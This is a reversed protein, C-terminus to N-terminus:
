GAPGVPTNMDTTIEAATLARNYIRVEDITGSFPLQGLHHQRRHAARQRSRPNGDQHGSTCVTGDVSCRGTTVHRRTFVLAVRYGPAARCPACGTPSTVRPHRARQHQLQGGVPVDHQQQRTGQGRDSRWTAPVAAWRTSGRRWTMATVDSTWRRPMSWPSWTTQGTSACRRRRLPGRAWVARSVTGTNAAASADALHYRQRRRLRLRGGPRHRAANSVTVHRVASTTANGGADRARATLMHTGNTAGLTNWSVSYPATTDEAGLSVGDLLFQVGVVGVNDAANASVSVTASVTAGAAPATLVVTPPISDPAPPNIPMAMDTQIEAPALTRNYVRVEDLTGGLFDANSAGHDM